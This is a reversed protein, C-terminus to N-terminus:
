GHDGRPPDVAFDDRDPIMKGAAIRDEISPASLGKDGIISLTSNVVAELLGSAKETHGPSHIPAAHRALVETATMEPGPGPVSFAIKMKRPAAPAALRKVVSRLDRADRMLADFERKAAKAGVWGGDVITSKRLVMAQQELLRAARQLLSKDLGSFM